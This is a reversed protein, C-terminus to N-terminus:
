GFVAKEFEDKALFELNLIKAKNDDIEKQMEDLHKVIQKQIDLPPLPIQFNEINTKNISPYSSKPMCKIIQEMLNDFKMFLMFLYKDLLKNTNKSNLIAFGTSYIANEIENKIFIFGKLNPRVTSIVTSNNDAYRRARSPANKGLIIKNQLFNGTGNEVADIDVYIFEKKPTIKPNITKKNIYCVNKLNVLDFKSKYKKEAKNEVSWDKIESYKKFHLIKDIKNFESKSNLNDIGLEQLLYNKSNQEIIENQKKLNEIELIRKQYEDVIKEQIDIPPLPIFSNLFLEESINRRGTTGSSNNECIEMFYNTTVFLTLYIPNIIEKNIDYNLFSATVIANDLENPVIGFAGNRADIKSIIFQGKNVIYQKKTGINKGLLEDRLYVGQNKTRITVRKYLTDNKILIEKKVRTLFSKIQVQNFKINKQEGQFYYNASWNELESWKIFKLFSM